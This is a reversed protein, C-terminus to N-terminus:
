QAACTADVTCQVALIRAMPSSGEPVTAMSTPEPEAMAGSKPSLSATAVAASRVCGVSRWGRTGQASPAASASTNQSASASSQVAPM